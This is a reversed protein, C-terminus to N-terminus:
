LGALVMLRQKLEEEASKSLIKNYPAIRLSIANGNGWPWWACFVFAEDSPDSSFLYQTPRIGGLYDDLQLVVKPAKNINSSDWSIPLHKELVARVDSEQDNSFEALFTGVWDDWQWTLMGRFDFFLQECIKENDLQSM